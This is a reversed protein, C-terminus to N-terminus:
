ISTIFSPCQPEPLTSINLIARVAWLRNLHAYLKNVFFRHYSDYTNVAAANMSLKPNLCVRLTIAYYSHTYILRMCRMEDMEGFYVHSSISDSSITYQFSNFCAYRARWDHLIAILFWIYIFNFSKLIYEKSFHCFLARKKIWIMCKM